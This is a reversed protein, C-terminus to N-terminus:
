SVRPDLDDVEVVLMANVRGRRDLFGDAGHRFQHPGALDAVQPQGLCRRRCKTPGARYVGDGSKLGLVRQPSAVRFRSIRAM